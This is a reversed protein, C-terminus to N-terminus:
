RLYMQLYSPFLKEFPTFIAQLPPPLAVPIWRAGLNTHGFSWMPTRSPDLDLMLFVASNVDSFNQM